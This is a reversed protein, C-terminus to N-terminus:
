PAHQGRRQLTSEGRPSTAFSAFPVTWEPQFEQIQARMDRLKAAAARRRMETDDANGNWGAYSFQTLLLDVGGVAKSITRARGAGDVSCDNVNLIGTGGCEYYIWSDHSPVSGCIVQLGGALDIPKLHPLERTQFGIRSCFDLVKQDKTAQFLVTVNQRIEEPIRSLVDPSFHDPHEHSIWVYDIERFRELDFPVDCLLRWGDNFASGFLWPDSIIRVGNFEVIFSAHNVFEISAESGSRSSDATPRERRDHDM